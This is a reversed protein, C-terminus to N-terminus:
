IQDRYIKEYARRLESEYVRVHVHASHLDAELALIRADRTALAAELQAIYHIVDPDPVARRAPALAIAAGLAVADIVPDIIQHLSM